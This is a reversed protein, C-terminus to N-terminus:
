DRLDRWEAFGFIYGVGWELAKLPIHETLYKEAVDKARLIRDPGCALLNEKSGALFETFDEDNGNKVGSIYLQRMEQLLVATNPSFEIVKDGLPISMTKMCGMSFKMAKRTDELSLGDERGERFMHQVVGNSCEIVRLLAINDLDESPLSHFRSWDYTV